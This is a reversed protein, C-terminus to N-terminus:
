WERLDDDSSWSTAPMDRELAAVALGIIILSFWRLFSGGGGDGDGSDKWASMVVPRLLRFPARSRTGSPMSKFSREMLAVM